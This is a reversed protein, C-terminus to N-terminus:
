HEDPRASLGLQARAEHYMRTVEVRVQARETLTTSFPIRIPVERGDVTAQFEIAEQDMDSMVAATAQPRGGLSQCILLCDEAHDGNMHRMIAAVVDPTVFTM